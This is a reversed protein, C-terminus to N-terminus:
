LPRVRHGYQPGSFWGWACDYHQEQGRYVVAHGLGDATHGGAIWLEDAAVPYHGGGFRTIYLYDKEMFTPTLSELAFGHREAEAHWASWWEEPELEEPPIYNIAAPHVGTVCAFALRMCEGRCGLDPPIWGPTRRRTSRPEVAVDGYDLTLGTLVAQSQRGGFFLRANETFFNRGAM